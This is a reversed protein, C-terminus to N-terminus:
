EGGLVKMWHPPAKPPPRRGYFLDDMWLAARRFFGSHYIGWRVANHFLTDPHSFPCVSMCRGCDTGVVNWYRFCADPNIRWRLAGDVEQRPGFSISRTPCTKACKMCINCFDVVAAAFRLDRTDPILPADTTVVGVRVRAGQRPTMLISMRGFEGLGADRAVLPAIVRYNADIHARAAYGLHRLAAAVQVAVRAAEVYERASEAVVPAHPAAQMIAFDMEVTFALAYTHPLAIPAGWEGPGRGIHSYVHYPRLETVGADLAGYYRALNKLYATMEQPSLPAQRPAPTGEVIQHLAETTEFSAAAAAFLFPNAFKAQPSLLGPRARTSDDGAKHEPHLRYYTEYTPTGPQLRARAFMVEREDFRSAPADNGLDVRGIPLLFLVLFVAGSGAALGLVVERGAAPLFGAGGLLVGGGLGLALAVRVARPERERRSAAAFAGFLGSWLLGLGWLAFSTWHADM